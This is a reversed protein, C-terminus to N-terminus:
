KQNFYYWCYVVPLPLIQDGPVFKRKALVQNQIERNLVPSVERQSVNCKNRKKSGM